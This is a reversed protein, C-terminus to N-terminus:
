QHCGTGIVDPGLLTSAGVVWDKHRSEKLENNLQRSPKQNKARRKGERRLFFSGDSPDKGEHKRGRVPPYLRIDDKKRHNCLREWWKREKSTRGGGVESTDRKVARFCAWVRKETWLVQTVVEGREKL